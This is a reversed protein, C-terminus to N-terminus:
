ARAQSELLEAELRRAEEEAKALAEADEAPAPKPAPAAPPEEVVEVVEAEYIEPEAPAPAPAPARAAPPAAPRPQARPIASVAPRSFEFMQAGSFEEEAEEEFEIEIEFSEAKRKPELEIFTQGRERDHRLAFFKLALRRVPKDLRLRQLLQAGAARPLPPGAPLGPVQYARREM